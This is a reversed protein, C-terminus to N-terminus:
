LLLRHIQTTRKPTSGTQMIADTAQLVVWIISDVVLWRMIWDPNPSFAAREGLVQRVHSAKPHTVRTFRNM